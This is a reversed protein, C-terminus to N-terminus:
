SGAPLSFYFTAGEDVKAEAWTQGGHREVIRKVNALGIGIGEFTEDRHLRQFVGFLQGAFKPDFGVGNDRVFFVHNLGDDKAHGIEVISSTRTRTYKLANSILNILVQRLMAPDAVVEPMPALKWAVDRGKCDPMMDDIVNLLLADLNIPTRSLEQRAMRSFGLLDNILCDMKTVASHIRDFSFEDDECIGSGLNERISAAYGAIHRLPARLEHSISYSFAELERNAVQLQAIHEHERRQFEANELRLRRMALSRSLVPLAVSVKFPKLVYDMAGSKMAEVATAITGQGTMIVGVLTPDAEFASKLLTLGDVEPMMLDTLILDFREARIAELAAMGSTFGVTEYGYDQLTDCLAHMQRAEDDVILIRPLATEVM